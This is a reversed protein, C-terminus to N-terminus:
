ESMLWYKGDIMASRQSILFNCACKGRGPVNGGETRCPVQPVRNDASPTFPRWRNWLFFWKFDAESPRHQVAVIAFILGNVSLVILINIQLTPYTNQRNTRTPQNTINIPQYPMSQNIAQNISKRDWIIHVELLPRSSRHPFCALTKLLRAITHWRNNYSSTNVKQETEHTKKGALCLRNYILHHSLTTRENRKSSQEIYANWTRRFLPRQNRARRGDHGSVQKNHSAREGREKGDIFLFSTFVAWINASLCCTNKWLFYVTSLLLWRCTKPRRSRNWTTIIFDLIRWICHLVNNHLANINRQFPTNEMM